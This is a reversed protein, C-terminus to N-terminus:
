ATRYTVLGLLVPCLYIMPLCLGGFFSDILLNRVEAKFQIAAYWAAELSLIAQNIRLASLVSRHRSRVRNCTATTKSRPFYTFVRLCPKNERQM